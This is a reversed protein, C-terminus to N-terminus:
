SKLSQKNLQENGVAKIMAYAKTMTEEYEVLPDSDAVIAGGVQFSVKDGNMLFTRIAMSLDVNGDFGIYGIAGTYVSRKTSELEDIIHMARIKPAGTISGGPFTAKILDIIDFNKNLDGEITSVLHHVTAFSELVKKEVVKVSGYDCVRGLDNRELDVIMTLEADDKPSSFLEDRAQADKTKDNHRQRTGKIPRIQVLAKTKCGISNNIAKVSLYREPSSSIISLGDFGIFSSYPAPNINRLRKYLNFPSLTTKTEFRQSLNVQYIDGANIYEKAKKVASIYEEKTFNSTLPSTLREHNPQCCTEHENVHKNSIINILREIKKEANGNNNINLSVVYRKDTLHDIAVFTDYFGFYMDPFGLDDKTTNPVKEIFHCMDYSFYGVAGGIFPMNIANSEDKLEEIKYSNLLHRLQEFPNGNIEKAGNSDEIIIKSDRYKIKLFPEIGFFSYKSYTNGTLASDLFFFDPYNSLQKIIELPTIPNQLERIVIEAM